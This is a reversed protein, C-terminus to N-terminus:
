AYGTRTRRFSVVAAKGAHKALLPGKVVERRNRFAVTIQEIIASGVGGRGTIGEGLGRYIRDGPTENGGRLVSL